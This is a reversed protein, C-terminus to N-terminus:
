DNEFADFVFRGSELAATISKLNAVLQDNGEPIDEVISAAKVLLKVQAKVDALKDISKGGEVVKQWNIANVFKLGNNEYSKAQSFMVSVVSPATCGKGFNHIVQKGTIANEEKYNWGNNEFISTKVMDLSVNAREMDQLETLAEVMLGKKLKNADKATVSNDALQDVIYTLNDDVNFTFSSTTESAIETTNDLMKIIELLAEMKQGRNLTM